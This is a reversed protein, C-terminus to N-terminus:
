EAEELPVGDFEFKIVGNFFKGVSEAKEFEAFVEAPVGAYQFRKGSKFDVQLTQTAPDYGIAALNSSEVPKTKIPEM